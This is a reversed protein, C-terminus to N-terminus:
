KIPRGPKRHEVRIGIRREIEDVFAGGGTLQNRDLAKQIFIQESKSVGSEVFVKYSNERDDLGLYCTDFDVWCFGGSGIKSQYSSWRYDEAFAVMGAKVPNLEVYRCCRM